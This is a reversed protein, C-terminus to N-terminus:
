GHLPVRFRELSEVDLLVATGVVFDGFGVQQSFITRDLDLAPQYCVSLSPRVCCFLFWQTQVQACVPLVLPHATVWDTFIKVPMLYSDEAALSCALHLAAQHRTQLLLTQFPALPPSSLFSLLRLHTSLSITFTFHFPPSMYVGVPYLIVCFPM